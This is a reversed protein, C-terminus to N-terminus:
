FQALNEGNGFLGLAISDTIRNCVYSIVGQNIGTRKDVMGYKM